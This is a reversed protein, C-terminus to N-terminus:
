AEQLKASSYLIVRKELSLGGLNSQKGDKIQEVDNWSRETAGIKLQKSTTHYAVFGLVKTYPLSDHQHWIFFKGNLADLMSLHGKFKAFPGTQQQFHYFEKLFNNIIMLNSENSVETNPFPRIFRKYQELYSM